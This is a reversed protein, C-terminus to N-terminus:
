HFQGRCSRSDMRICSAPAASGTLQAPIWTMQSCSGMVAHMHVPYVLEFCLGVQVKALGCRHEQGANGELEYVSPGKWCTYCTGMM